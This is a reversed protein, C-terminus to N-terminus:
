HDVHAPPPPTITSTLDYGLIAPPIDITEREAFSGSRPVDKPVDHDLPSADNETAPPSAETDVGLEDRQLPEEPRAVHEPTARAAALRAAQANAANIYRENTRRGEEMQVAVQAARRTRVKHLLICPLFLLCLALYM